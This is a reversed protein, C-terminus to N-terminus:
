KEGCIPLNTIRLSGHCDGNQPNADRFIQRKKIGRKSDAKNMEQREETKNQQEHRIEFNM